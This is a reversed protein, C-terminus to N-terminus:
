FFSALNSKGLNREFVKKMKKDWSKKEVSATITRKSEDSRGRWIFDDESLEGLWVVRFSPLGRDDTDYEAVLFWGSTVNHGVTSWPSRMTAKVEIGVGTTPNKLDPFATNPLKKFGSLRDLLRTMFDSVLGSYQNHRILQALPPIDHTASGDNIAKFIKKVELLTKELHEITLGKPMPVDYFIGDLM